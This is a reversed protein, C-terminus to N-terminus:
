ADVLEKVKSRVDDSKMISTGVLFADAGANRLMIIDKSSTIGSETIIIKNNTNHEKLISVTTSLDILLTELNRNNIGIMDADTMIAKQFENKNHAELLIMIDKTHAYYIMEDLKSECQNNDFLHQILLITDVGIKSAADIQIKSIIIDKMLIPLETLQRIKIIRNISGGFFTPETLVSLGIAGGDVMDRVIKAYRFDRRIEGESPSAFKVEAIIPNKACNVIQKKLNRNELNASKKINNYYGENISKYAAEVLKDLFNHSNNKLTKSNQSM